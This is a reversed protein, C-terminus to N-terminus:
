NVAANFLPVEYTQIGAETIHVGDSQFWETNSWCGDCDLPTPAFDVLGDAWSHDARLMANLQERRAEINKDSPITVVICKWGVAHRASCYSQENGYCTAPTVGSALDNTCAWLIVYNRASTRSFLPDINAPANALM